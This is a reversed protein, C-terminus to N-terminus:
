GTFRPQLEIAPAVCRGPIALSDLLLEPDQVDGVLTFAGTTPDVTFLSVLDTIQAGVGPDSTTAEGPDIPPLPAGESALAYLTGAVRDYEIGAIDLNDPLDAGPTAAGTNTNWSTLRQNFDAADVGSPFATGGAEAPPPTPEQDQTSLTSGSCAATLYNIFTEGQTSGGIFTAALTTPDVRYLCPESFDCGPEDTVMHVLMTDDAGFAIGGSAVASDTFNGTLSGLNTAAGTATDFKVLDVGLATAVSDGLLGYVTGDPAVALDDVCSNLSSAPLANVEATALDITGLSCGQGTDWVITYGQSEAAGTPAGGMAVVGVGATLTTVALVALLKRVRMGPEEAM